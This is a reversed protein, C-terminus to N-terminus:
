AVCTREHPGSAADPAADPTADPAADPAAHRGCDSGIVWNSSVGGTGIVRAAAQRWLIAGGPSFGARHRLCQIHGCPGSICSQLDFQWCITVASSFPLVGGGRIGIDFGRALDEEGCRTAAAATALVDGSAATGVTPDGGGAAPTTAVAAAPPAVAFGL